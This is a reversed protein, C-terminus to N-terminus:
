LQVTLGPHESVSVDKPLPIQLVMFYGLVRGGQEMNSFLM